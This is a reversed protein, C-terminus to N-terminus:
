KKAMEKQLSFKLEKRFNSKVVGMGIEYFPFRKKYNITEKFAILLKEPKGKVMQYVGMGTKTPMVKRNRKTTLKKFKLNGHENLKAEKTPVAEPYKPTSPGGEIQPKLYRAVFDKVQVFAELKNRTASGIFFGDITKPIPRDFVKKTQIGYTKKLKKATNNLAWRTAEPLHKKYKRGLSKVVEKQNTKISIKM